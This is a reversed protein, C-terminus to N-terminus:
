RSARVFVLSVDLEVSNLLIAAPLYPQWGAMMTSCSPFPPRSRRWPCLSIDAHIQCLQGDRVEAFDVVCDQVELTSQVDQDTCVVRPLGGNDIRQPREKGPMVFRVRPQTIGGGM